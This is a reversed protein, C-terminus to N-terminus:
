IDNMPSFMSLSAINANSSAFVPLSCSTSSNKFDASGSGRLRFGSRGAPVREFHTRRLEANEICEGICLPAIGVKRTLNGFGQECLSLIKERFRGYDFLRFNQGRFPGSGLSPTRRRSNRASVRQCSALFGSFM